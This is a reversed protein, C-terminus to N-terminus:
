GQLHWEEEDEQWKRTECTTQLRHALVAEGGEVVVVAVDEADEDEEADGLIEPM